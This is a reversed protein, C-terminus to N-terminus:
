RNAGLDPGVADVEADPCRSARADFDDKVVSVGAYAGCEQCGFRAAVESADHGPGPGAQSVAEPEIGVVHQVGIGGRAVLRVTRM